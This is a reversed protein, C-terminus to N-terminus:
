SHDRGLRETGHLAEGGTTSVAALKHVASAAELWEIRPLNASARHALARLRARGASCAIERRLKLRGLTEDM